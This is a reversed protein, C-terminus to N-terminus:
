QCRAASIMLDARTNLEKLHHTFTSSNHYSGARDSGQMVAHARSIPHANRAILHWDGDALRVLVRAAVIAFPRERRLLLACLEAELDALVDPRADFITRGIFEVIEPNGTDLRRALTTLLNDQLKQAYMAPLRNLLKGLKGGGTAGKDIVTELVAQWQAYDSPMSESHETLVGGALIAAGDRGDPNLADPDIMDLLFRREDPGLDPVFATLDRLFANRKPSWLEKLRNPLSALRHVVYNGLSGESRIPDIKQVAANLRRMGRIRAARAIWEFTDVEPVIWEVLLTALEKFLRLNLSDSWEVLWEEIDRQFEGGGSDGSRAHALLLNVQDSTLMMQTNGDPRNLKALKLPSNPIGKLESEAWGGVIPAVRKADWRAMVAVVNLLRVRVQGLRTKVLWNKLVPTIADLTEARFDGRDEQQEDIRDVLWSLLAAVGREYADVPYDAEDFRRSVCFNAQGIRRVIFHLFPVVDIAHQHWADTLVAANESVAKEGHALLMAAMLPLWPVSVAHGHRTTKAVASWTRKLGRVTSKSGFLYGHEMEGIMMMLYEGCSHGEIALGDERMSQFGLLPEMRRQQVEMVPKEPLQPLQVLYRYRRTAEDRRGADDDPDQADALQRSWLSELAQQYLAPRKQLAGFFSLIQVRYEDPTLEFRRNAPVTPLRSRNTLEHEKDHRAWVRVFEAVDDLPALFLLLFLYRSRVAMDSSLLCQFGLRQMAMLLRDALLARYKPDSSLAAECLLHLASRVAVAAEGATEVLVNVRGRALLDVITSIASWTEKQVANAELTDTTKGLFQSINKSVDHSAGKEVGDFFIEVIKAVDNNELAAQLEAKAVAPALCELRKLYIAAHDKSPVSTEKLRTGIADSPMQPKRRLQQYELFANLVRYVREEDDLESEAHRLDILEVHRKRWDAIATESVCVQLSYAMPCHKGLARMVRDNISRFTPDSLGFGIFLVQSEVFSKTVFADLLPDSQVHRLFDDGTIVINSPNRDFCGNMKIIRFPRRRRVLDRGEVIIQPAIHLARFAREILTDFNTTIIEAFGLEAIRRHVRGPDHAEDAVLETVRDVLAKRGYATEYYDAIRLVDTSEPIGSELQDRLAIGIEEWSPMRGVTPDRSGANFSLGAGAFLVVDGLALERAMHRLAKRGIDSVFVLDDFPDTM